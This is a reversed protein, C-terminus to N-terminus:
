LGLLFALMPLISSLAAAAAFAGARLSARLEASRQQREKVLELHARIARQTEEFRMRLLWEDLSEPEPLRRRALHAEEPPAVLM